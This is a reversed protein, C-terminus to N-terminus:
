LVIRFKEEEKLQVVECDNAYTREPLIIIVNAKNKHVPFAAYHWVAVKLMVLTGKPIYFARTKHLALTRNTAPAVHIVVDDDPCLMGEGTYNHFELADVVMDRKYSKLTSFCVPLPSSTLMPVLDATFDMASGEPAIDDNDVLSAFQGFPAFAELSLPEAHLTKM